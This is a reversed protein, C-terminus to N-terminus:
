HSSNLRTSKRDLPGPRSTFFEAVHHEVAITLKLLGQLLVAALLSLTFSSIFIHDSYEDFLNLVVLDILVGTFYRIFLRQRDSPMQATIPLFGHIKKVM